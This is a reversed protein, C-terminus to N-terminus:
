ESEDDNWKRVNALPISITNKLGHTVGYYERIRLVGDAVAPVGYPTEVRGDMYEITIHRQNM